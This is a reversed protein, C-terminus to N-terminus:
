CIKQKWQKSHENAKELSTAVEFLAHKSLQWLDLLIVGYITPPPPPPPSSPPPPQPPPIPITIDLYYKPWAVHWWVSLRGHVLGALYAWPLYVSKAEGTSQIIATRSLMCLPSMKNTFLLFTLLSGGRGGRGKRAGEGGGGWFFVWVYVCMCKHVCVCVCVYMCACACTCMYVCKCVYMCAHMRGCVSVCVCVCAHVCVCLRACVCVREGEREKEIERYRKRKRLCVHVNVACLGFM